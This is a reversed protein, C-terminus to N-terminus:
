RPGIPLPEAPRQAVVMWYVVVLGLLVFSIGLGLIMPNTSEFVVYGGIALFVLSVVLGALKM